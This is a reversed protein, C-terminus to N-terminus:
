DLIIKPWSIIVEKYLAENLGSSAAEIVKKLLGYSTPIGGFANSIHYLAFAIQIDTKTYRNPRGQGRHTNDPDGLYGKEVWYHLQRKSVGTMAIVEDTKFM